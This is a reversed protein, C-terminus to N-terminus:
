SYFFFVFYINDSESLTTFKRKNEYLTFLIDFLSHVRYMKKKSRKVFFYEITFCLYEFYCYIMYINNISHRNYKQISSSCLCPGSM